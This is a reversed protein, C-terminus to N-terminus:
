SGYVTRAVEDALVVVEDFAADGGVTALVSIWSEERLVNLIAPEHDDDGVQGFTTYDEVPVEALGQALLEQQVAQQGAPDLPAVSVTWASEETTPDGWICTIGGAQQEPTPEALYDDGYRGGPGGLLVLGTSALTDLREQPLVASCDTPVDFPEGAADPATTATPTPTSAESGVLPAPTCGVLVLGLLLPSAALVRRIM